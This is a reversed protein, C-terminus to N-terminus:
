RIIGTFCVGGDRMYTEHSRIEGRGSLKKVGDM